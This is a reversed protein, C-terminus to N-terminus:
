GNITHHTTPDIGGPPSLSRNSARALEASSTYSHVTQSNIYKFSFSYGHRTDNDSHGKVLFRVGIFHTSLTTLYFM